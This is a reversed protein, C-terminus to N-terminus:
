LRISYYNWWHEPNLPQTFEVQEGRQIRASIVDRLAFSALYQYGKVQAQMTFLLRIERGGKQGWYGVRIAIPELFITNAMGYNPDAIGPRLQYRELPGGKAFGIIPGNESGLRLTNLITHPDTVSENFEEKKFQLPLPLEEHIQALTKIFEPDRRRSIPEINAFFRANDYVLSAEIQIEQERLKMFSLVNDM